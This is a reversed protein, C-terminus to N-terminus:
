ESAAELLAKYTDILKKETAQTHVQPLVSESGIWRIIADMACSAMMLSDNDFAHQRVRTELDAMAMEPLKSEDIPEKAHQRLQAFTEDLLFNFYDYSTFYANDRLLAKHNLVNRTEKEFLTQIDTTDHVAQATLLFRWNRDARIMRETLLPEIKPNRCSPVEDGRLEEFYRDPKQQLLVKARGIDGISDTVQALKENFREESICLSILAKGPFLYGYSHLQPGDRFYVVYDHFLLEHLIDIDDMMLQTQERNTFYHVMYFTFDRSRFLADFSVRRKMYWYFSTGIFWVTPYSTSDNSLLTVPYEYIPEHKLPRALNLLNELDKDDFPIDTISYPEGRQIKTLQLDGLQEMRRLLTDVALVAGSAWHSGKSYFLDIGCTDQMQKFWSTMNIYPIDREGLLREYYDIANFATDGVPHWRLHEPYVFSKSPLTFTLFHVGYEKLIANVKDLCRVEDDLLERVQDSNKDFKQEMNGFYQFVSETHYLWGDKEIAVDNNSTTKFLDYTCQNYMRILPERFGFHEQLYAEAQRQYARKQYRSFELKPKETPEKYGVMGKFKFPKWYQQVMPAFLIVATLGFLLTLIGHNKKM